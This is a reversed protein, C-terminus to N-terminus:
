YATQFLEMWKFPEFNTLTLYPSKEFGLTHQESGDHRPM